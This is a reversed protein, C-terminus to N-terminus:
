RERNVCRDPLRLSGAGVRHNQPEQHHQLFESCPLGQSCEKEQHPRHLRFSGLHDHTIEPVIRNGSSCKPVGRQEFADLVQKLSKADVEGTIRVRYGLPHVIELTSRSDALALPIFAQSGGNADGSKQLGCTPPRRGEDGAILRRRWNYFSAKSVDQEACFRHVSLGSRVQCKLVDRWYVEKQANSKM